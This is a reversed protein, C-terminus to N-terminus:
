TAAAELAELYAELQGIKASCDGNDPTIAMTVVSDRAIAHPRCHQLVLVGVTLLPPSLRM